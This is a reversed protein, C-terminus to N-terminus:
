GGMSWKKLFQLPYTGRLEYIVKLLEKIRKAKMNSFGGCRIARAIERTDALAAQKWGRFNRRLSQSARRCNHYTTNQSLITLILEDLPDHYSDFKPRGYQKQLASVIKLIKNM